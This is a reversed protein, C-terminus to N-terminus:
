YTITKSCFYEGSNCMVIKSPGTLLEEGYRQDYSPKTYIRDFVFESQVKDTHIVIAFEENNETVFFMFWDDNEFHRFVMKIIGDGLNVTFLIDFNKSDLNTTKTEYEYNTPLEKINVIFPLDKSELLLGELKNTGFNPYIDIIM